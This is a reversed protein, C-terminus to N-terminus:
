GLWEEPTRDGKASNCNVCCWVLNKGRGGGRSKPIQHDKTIGDTAGCYFCIPDGAPAAADRRSRRLLPKSAAEIKLVDSMAVHLNKSIWEPSRKMNLFVCVAVTNARSLGVRDALKLWAEQRKM